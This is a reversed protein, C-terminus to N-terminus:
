DELRAVARLISQRVFPDEERELHRLMAPLARRWGREALVRVVEARVSWDAHSVLPILADLTEEGGHAGLCVVALRVVDPESRDLVTTALAGAAEGGASMLAELGALAVIPESRLADAVLPEAGPELRGLGWHVRGLARVTAAVVRPDPDEVQRALDDLSEDRRFHGLVAVAAARVASSEDGLALRLPDRVREFPLRELAEVAARRVGPSEDRLLTGIVDRDREGGLRALVRAIALRVAEPAGALRSALVEVLQADVGAAAAEPHGALQVIAQVLADVEEDGEAEGERAALELRGVLDTLRGFHGGEALAQAAACRLMGDRADLAETLLPEAGEGGVEGLLRCARARLAPDLEDWAEALAPALRDAFAVLTAEAQEAFREDRAVRLIPLVSRPDGLLGLFQILMMGSRVDAEALRECSSAVLAPEAAAVGRIREVLRAGESGDRRALIRLLAAMSAERSTRRDESLGKLLVEVAEPDSAHGLLSLSAPRLVSPALCGALREVAVDAGLRELACLAALRVLLEEDGDSARALLAAVEDGGGVVGLADAAAARVNPDPDGLLPRLPDRAAPDGIAALADILQKRVDVDPTRLGTVLRPTLSAGCAVIAEFAANRRGPDEGDALAAVLMAQVAPSDRRSVLRAVASKRVRWSRDGLLHELQEISQEEPLLLIREVALRRVEDDPSSLGDLVDRREAAAPPDTM